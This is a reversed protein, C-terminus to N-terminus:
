MYVISIIFLCSLCVLRCVLQIFLSDDKKREVLQMSELDKDLTVKREETTRLAELAKRKEFLVKEYEELTMEQLGFSENIRDGISFINKIFKIVSL